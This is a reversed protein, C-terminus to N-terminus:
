YIKEKNLWLYVEVLRNLKILHNDRNSDIPWIKYKEDRELVLNKKDSFYICMLKLRDNCNLQHRQCIKFTTSEYTNINMRSMYEKKTDILIVNPMKLNYYASSAILCPMGFTSGAHMVVTTNNLLDYIENWHRNLTKKDKQTSWTLRHYECWNDTEHYKEPPKFTWHHIDSFKKDKISCISLLILDDFNKKKFYDADKAVTEMHVCWVQDKKEVLTTMKSSLTQKHSIKISFRIKNNFKCM